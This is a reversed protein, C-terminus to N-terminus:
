SVNRMQNLLLVDPNRRCSVVRSVLSASARAGASSACRSRTGKQKVWRVTVRQRCRRVKCRLNPQSTSSIILYAPLLRTPSTDSIAPGDTAATQHWSTRVPWCRHVEHSFNLHTRQCVFKSIAPWARNDVVLRIAIGLHTFCSRGHGHVISAAATSQGFTSSLRRFDSQSWGPWRGGRFAISELSSNSHANCSAIRVHPLIIYRRPSKFHPRKLFHLCSCSTVDTASRSLMSAINLGATMSFPIRFPWRCCPRFWWLMRASTPLLAAAAAAVITTCWVCRAM